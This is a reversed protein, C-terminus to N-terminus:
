QFFRQLTVYGEAPRGPQGEVTPQGFGTLDFKNLFYKEDTVNTGGVSIVWDGNASTWDIRANLIEFSSTCRDADTITPNSDTRTLFSCLESQGYFDVRPTLTAGGALPIEYSASVNWNDEPTHVPYDGVYSVGPPLVLGPNSFEDGDFNTYGYVGSLTFADTPRWTFEAEIGSVEAPINEYFTRSTTEFCINGLGDQVAPLMTVPDIDGVMTGPPALNYMPPDSGPILLCEIGGVALIRQEYDIFFGAVNMRLTDNLFDGKIGVDYSVNEDGDVPVFQTVQFPRPNFAKPKYGTAASAYLMVDDNLQFDIGLKWDTSTTKAHGTTIVINNDFDDDKTDESYRLGASIRVRDTLEYSVHGFVSNNESDTISFGNVLFPIPVFGPISVQQSTKFTGDYYFFGFTWDARDMLRGSFRLEATTSEFFQVGDVTNANLPGQDSDTAFQSTFERDSLVAVVNLNDNIDWDAKASLGSQELATQPVFKFGFNPDAYTAYSTYIDPPLFDTFRVGWTAFQADDYFNFPVQLQGDFPGGQNTALAVLTDARAESNDDQFDGTLTLDFDDNLAFRIAARAGTVDEGGQTGVKCGAQRNFSQQPLTSVGPNLCIWDYVDQHGDRSKSVGAIRAFVNDSIAFDYSGRVDVRDYSGYTVSINGTNDGQPQKSVFRIAGGLAGRGFLTGQPGRLVEVRELDLLDIMSGMTVPHLVDDFYIGVGPEFQPLFDYQGIGRIYATMTNGFAAQAPRLSANPVVYAVEYADDFARVEIEAASLATIAIPTTQLREQRYRSTVIIEDLVPEQDEQALVITSTGSYALGAVIPLTLFSFIGRKRQRFIRM